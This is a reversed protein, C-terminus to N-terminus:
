EDLHRRLNSWLKNLAQSGALNTSVLDLNAFIFAARIRAISGVFAFDARALSFAATSGISATTIGIEAALASFETFTTTLAAFAHEVILEATTGAAPISAQITQLNKLLSPRCM